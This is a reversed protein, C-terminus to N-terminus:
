SIYRSVRNLNFRKKNDSYIGLLTYIDPKYFLENEIGIRKLSERVKMVESNDTYDKTYVCIVHTGKSALPHRSTSIKASWIKGKNALKEIKKWLQDTEDRQVFILWKGSLINTKEAIKDILMENMKLPKGKKEDILIRRHRSDLQITINYGMKKLLDKVYHFSFNRQKEEAETLQAKTRIWVKNKEKSPKM